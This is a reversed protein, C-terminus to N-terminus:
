VSLSREPRPHMFLLWGENGEGGRAVEQWGLHEYFRRAPLNAEECKLRAPGVTTALGAALLARGVGAGQWPFDIYLSHVYTEQRYVSVLGALAAGAWALTVEEGAISDDFNDTARREDSMWPLSKRRVRLFLEGAIPLDADTAKRIAVAPRAIM